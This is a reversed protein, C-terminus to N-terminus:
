LAARREGRCAKGPKYLASARGSPEAELRVRVHQPVRAAERQGFLAVVCARQLGVQAM